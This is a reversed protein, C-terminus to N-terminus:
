TFPNNPTLRMALKSPKKQGDLQCSELNIHVQVLILRALQKPRGTHGRRLAVDGGGGILGLRDGPANAAGHHHLCLDVGPAAALRAPHLQRGRRRLRLGVGTSDEAHQDLSEGDLLHHHGRGVDRGLGIHAQDHIPFRLPRQQHHARRAPDVDLLDRRLGRLLDELQGDVRAVPQHWMLRKPQAELQVRIGGLGAGRRLDHRREIAGEHGIPRREGLDVRQHGRRVARHQCQVGLDGNVVVFEVPTGVQGRQPVLRRLGGGLYRGAMGPEGEDLEVAVDAAHDVAGAQGHGGHVQHLVVAALRGVEQIDAAARIRLLDDVGEPDDGAIGLDLGDQEIDEAPDGAGVIDGVADLGRQRLERDLHRDHYPQGTGVLGLCHPDELPDAAVRRTTCPM